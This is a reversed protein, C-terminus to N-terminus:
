SHLSSDKVKVIKAEISFGNLFQLNMIGGMQGYSLLHAEPCCFEEFVGNENKRTVFFQIHVRNMNLFHKEVSHVIVDIRLKGEDGEYVQIRSNVDLVLRKCSKEANYDVCTSLEVRASACFSILGLSCAFVKASIM